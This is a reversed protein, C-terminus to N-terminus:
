ASEGGAQRRSYEWLSVVGLVGTVATAIYFRPLYEAIHTGTQQEAQAVVAIEAVHVHALFGLHTVFLLLFWAGCLLYLYRSNARAVDRVIEPYTRPQELQQVRESSDESSM